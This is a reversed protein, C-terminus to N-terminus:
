DDFIPGLGATAKVNGSVQLEGLQLARRNPLQRQIQLGVPVADGPSPCGPRRRNIKSGAQHLGIGATTADHQRQRRQM